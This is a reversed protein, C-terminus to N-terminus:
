TKTSADQVLLSINPFALASVHRGGGAIGHHHPGDLTADNAPKAVGSRVRHAMLDRVALARANVSAVNQM